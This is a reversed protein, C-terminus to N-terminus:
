NRVDEPDLQRRSIDFESMIGKLYCKGPALADLIAGDLEVVLAAVEKTYPSFKNVAREFDAVGGTDSAVHLLRVGQNLNNGIARLNSVIEVMWKKIIPTTM